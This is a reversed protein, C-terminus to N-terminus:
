SFTAELKEASLYERRYRALRLAGRVSKTAVFACWLNVPFAFDLRGYRLSLSTHFCEYLTWALLVMSAWPAQKNFIVIALVVALVMFVMPFALYFRPLGFNLAIRQFLLSYGLLYWAAPLWGAAAEDRAAVPTRPSALSFSFRGLGPWKHGVARSLARNEGDTM